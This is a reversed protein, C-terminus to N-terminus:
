YRSEKRELAKREAEAKVPPFYYSNIHILIIKYSIINYVFNSTISPKLSILLKLQMTEEGSLCSGRKVAKRGRRKRM